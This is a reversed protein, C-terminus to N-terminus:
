LSLLYRYANVARRLQVPISKQIVSGKGFSPKGERSVSSGGAKINLAIKDGPPANYRGNDHKINKASNTIASEISKTRM